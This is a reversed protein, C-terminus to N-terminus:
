SPPAWSSHEISSSRGRTTAILLLSCAGRTEYIKAPPWASHATRTGLSALRPFESRTQSPTPFPFLLCLHCPSLTSPAVQRAETHNGKSMWTNIQHGTPGSKRPTGVEWVWSEKRPGNETVNAPMQSAPGPSADGRGRKSLMERLLKSHGPIQYTPWALRSSM